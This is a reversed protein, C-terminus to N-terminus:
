SGLYLPNKKPPTEFHLPPRGAARSASSCTQSKRGPPLAGAHPQPLLCLAGQHPPLILLGRSFFLFRTLSFCSYNNGPLIIFLFHFRESQQISHETTRSPAEFAPVTTGLGGADDDGAYIQTAFFVKKPVSIHFQKIFGEFSATQSAAFM